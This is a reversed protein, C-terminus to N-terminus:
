RQLGPGATGNYVNIAQRQLNDQKSRLVLPVVLVPIAAFFLPSVGPANGQFTQLFGAVILGGAALYSLTIGTKCYNARALLAQAVQNDTTALALNRANLNQVPGNDKSFFETKTTRYGGYPSGYGGGYPYGGYGGYGVPGGFGSSPAYSTTYMAYLSLRGTKERRLTAEHSSGPLTTRVYHGTEDEYFGVTTLDIRQQGDLLLYSRGFLPSKTEVSYVNYLQGTKLGVQYRTPRGPSDLVYPRMGPAPAPMATTPAAPLAPAPAAVVPAVGTSDADNPAAPTPAAPATTVAPAPAPVAIPTTPVANLQRPPPVPAAPTPAPVAPAGGLQRPADDQALTVQPSAVGMGLALTLAVLAKM